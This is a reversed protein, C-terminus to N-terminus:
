DAVTYEPFRALCPQALAVAPEMAETLGALSNTNMNALNSEILVADAYPIADRQPPM